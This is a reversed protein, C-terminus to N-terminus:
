DGFDDVALGEHDEPEPRRPRDRPVEADGAGTETGGRQLAAREGTGDPARGIPRRNATIDSMLQKMFQDLPMDSGHGQQTLLRLVELQAEAERDELEVKRHWERDARELRWARERTQQERDALERTEQAAQQARFREASEEHRRRREGDSRALQESATLEGQVRAMAELKEPGDLGRSLAEVEELDFARQRRDRLRRQADDEHQREWTFREEDVQRERGARTRDDELERKLPELRRTNELRAEELELELREIYQRDRIREEEARLVQEREKRAKEEQRREERLEDPTLLELGSLELYMGPVVLPRIRCYDSLAALADDKAAVARTVEFAAGARQLTQCGAIYVELRRRMDEPGAEVVRVPDRVTCLFAARVTFEDVGDSPIRLEATVPRDQTTDVVCYSTANDLDEQGRRGGDDARVLRDGVRLVVVERPLPSPVANPERRDGRRLFRRRRTVPELRDQSIIPYTVTM